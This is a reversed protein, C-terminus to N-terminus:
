VSVMKGETSKCQLLDHGYRECLECYKSLDESDHHQPTPSASSTTTTTTPSISFHKYESNRKTHLQSTKLSLIERELAVNKKREQELQEELDAEGFVRNEVISELEALEKSLQTVETTKLTLSKRHMENEKQLQTVKEQLSNHDKPGGSNTKDSGSLDQKELALMEDMLQNYDDELQKNKELVQNYQKELSMTSLKLQYHEDEAKAQQEFASDAEEILRKKDALEKEFDNQLSDYKQEMSLIQQHSQQVKNKLTEIEHSMSQITVRESDLEAMTLELQEELRRQQDQGQPTVVVNMHMQQLEKLKSEIDQESDDDFLTSQKHRLDAITYELGNIQQQKLALEKEHNKKIEVVSNEYAHIAELGARRLEECEKELSATTSESAQVKKRVQDMAGQHERAKLVSDEKLTKIEEQLERVLQELREIRRQDQSSKEDDRQNKALSADREALQETLADVQTKLEEIQRQLRRTKLEEEEVQLSLSEKSSVLREWASEKNKMQQLLTDREKQVKELINYLQDTEEKLSHSPSPTSKKRQMQPQAPASSPPPPPTPTSSSTPTLTSRKVPTTTQQTLSSPSPSQVQQQQQYATTTIPTITPTITSRKIPQLTPSKEHTTTPIASTRVLRKKTTTTTSSSSSTPNNSSSSNNRTLPLNSKRTIPVSSATTTTSTM